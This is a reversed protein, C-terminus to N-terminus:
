GDAPRKSRAASRTPHKAWEIDEKLTEITQEPVPPMAEALRGPATLRRLDARVSAITQSSVLPTGRRIRNRGLLAVAAAAGVYLGLTIALAAALPMGYELLRAILAALVGLAVLGVVGAAAVMGAGIGAQKGNAVAQRQASSVEAVLDQQAIKRREDLDERLMELKERLEAKALQVEQRILLSADQSLDRVLQRAPRQKLESGNGRV